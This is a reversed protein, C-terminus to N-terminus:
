APLVVGIYPLTRYRDAYDLGYGVVWDDPIDFGLYDVSVAVEARAAKRVLVCTRISRPGRAALTDLLYRLTRGSDVIDEVILVDKGRIDERLDMVLRVNEAVSGGKGYSALAIFDVSRPITLARALDALFIFAGKLVGVLLLDETDAYDRSIQAALAAVRSRIESEAILPKPLATM